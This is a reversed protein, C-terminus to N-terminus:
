DRRSDNKESQYFKQLRRRRLENAEADQSSMPSDLHEESGFNEIKVEERITDKVLNESINSNTSTVGSSSSAPQVVETAISATSTSPQTQNTDHANALPVSNSPVNDPPVETPPIVTATPVIPVPIPLQSVISNYQNMLAVSANLMLQVNQLLKIRAEVNHREMGELARVEEDTLTDLNPPMPPPPMAYPTMFSMPPLVLPTGPTMPFATAGSFQATSGINYDTIPPTILNAFPNIGLPINNNNLNNNNNNNGVNQNENINQNNMQPANAAAPPPQTATIPTRLINLRCTPCTQQRQFWSRLCTTHFIHGCPLKKSSNVM